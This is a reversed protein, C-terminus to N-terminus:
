MGFYTSYLDEMESIKLNHGYPYKYGDSDHMEFGHRVDIYYYDRRAVLDENGEIANKRSWYDETARVALLQANYDPLGKSGEPLCSDVSKPDYYSAPLNTACDVSPFGVETFIIPKMKPEWATTTGDPNVHKNKWWWEINQIAYEPKLHQAEDHDDIYYDYNVGSEWGALIQDATIEKQSDVETLPFYADIGVYDIHKSAWLDDLPYSLDDAHHYETWNASYTLKLKNTSQEKIIGALEILKFVGNHVKDNNEFDTFSVLETAIIMDDIYDLLKEGNYELNVYHLPFKNYEDSFHEIANISKFEIHGRWPKGPADIFLMPYLTVNYGLNKLAKAFTLISEDSPTGGWNAIGNEDFSTLEANRRTYDGVNWAGKFLEKHNTLPRIRITEGDLTDGFWGVILNVNKLNPYKQQLLDITNQAHTESNGEYVNYYLGGIDRVPEVMYAYEGSGPGINISLIKHSIRDMAQVNLTSYFM